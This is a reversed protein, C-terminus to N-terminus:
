GTWPLANLLVFRGPCIGTGQGAGRVPPLHAM